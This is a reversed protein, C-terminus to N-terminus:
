DFIGTRLPFAKAEETGACSAGGRVAADRSSALMKELLLVATCVIRAGPLIRGCERRETGTRFSCGAVQSKSGRHTPENALSAAQPVDVCSPTSIDSVIASFFAPNRHLHMQIRLAPM